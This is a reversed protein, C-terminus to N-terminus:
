TNSDGLSLWLQRSRQEWFIEESKYATLLQRNLDLILGDDPKSDTM